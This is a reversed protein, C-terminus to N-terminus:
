KDDDVEGEYEMQAWYLSDPFWSQGVAPCYTVRDIHERKLKLYREEQEEATGVDCNRPPASLASQVKNAFERLFSYFKDWDEWTKSFLNNHCFDLMSRKSWFWELAERMKATNGVQLSEKGTSANFKECNENMRDCVDKVLELTYPHWVYDYQVVVEHNYACRIAVISTGVDVYFPKDYNSRSM